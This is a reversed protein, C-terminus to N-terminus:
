GTNRKKITKLKLTKLVSQVMCFGDGPIRIKEFFEVPFSIQLATSNSNTNEKIPTTKPTIFSDMKPEEDDDSDELQIGIRTEETPSDDSIDTVSNRESMDSNKEVNVGEVRTGSAKKEREERALMVKNRRSMVPSTNPSKPSVPSHPTLALICPPTPEITEEGQVIQEVQTLPTLAMICSPTPEVAEDGRGTQEEQYAEKVGENQPNSEEKTGDNILIPLENGEAELIAQISIGQHVLMENERIPQLIRRGLNPLIDTGKKQKKTKTFSIRSSRNNTNRMSYRKTAETTENVPMNEKDEGIHRALCRKNVRMCDQRYGIPCQMRGMYKMAAAMDIQDM